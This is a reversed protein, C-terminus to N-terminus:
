NLIVNFGTFQKIEPMNIDRNGNFVYDSMPFTKTIFINGINRIFENIKNIQVVLSKKTKCKEMEDIIAYFPAFDMLKDYEALKVTEINHIIDNAQDVGFVENLVKRTMNERLNKLTQDKKEESVTEDGLVSYYYVLYNEAWKIVKQKYREPVTEATFLGGHQAIERKAEEYFTNQLENRQWIPGQKLRAAYNKYSGDDPYRKEFENWTSDTMSVGNLGLFNEATQSRTLLVFENDLRTAWDLLLAETTRYKSLEIAPLDDSAAMAPAQLVFTLALTAIGLLIQKKM